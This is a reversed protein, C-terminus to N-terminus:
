TLVSLTLIIVALIAVTYIAACILQEIIGLAFKIM